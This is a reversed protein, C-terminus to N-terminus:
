AATEANELVVLTQGIGVKNGVDAYVRSVKGAKEFALEVSKAPKVRGTVSVEQILDHKQAVVFDYTPTNDRGFYAYGGIGVGVLVILSIIVIPKKLFNTM